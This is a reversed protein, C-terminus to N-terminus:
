NDSNSSFDEPSLNEVFSHFDEMEHKQAQREIAEFDPSGAQELMEEAAFIDIQARLALAIADSPRADIHHFGGDPTKVNITAFFTNEEARTISVSILEGGLAQIVNMLLEHTKPRGQEEKHSDEVAMCISAVDATGMKITLMNPTDFLEQSETDPVGVNVEPSDFDEDLDSVPQLVVVSPFPGMGVCVNRLRMQIM